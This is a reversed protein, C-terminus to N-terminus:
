PGSLVALQSRVLRFVRAGEQRNRHVIAPHYKVDDSSRWVSAYSIVRKVSSSCLPVVFKEGAVLFMSLVDDSCDGCLMTGLGRQMCCLVSRNGIGLDIM